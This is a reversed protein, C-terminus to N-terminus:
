ARMASRTAYAKEKFDIEKFAFNTYADGADLVKALTKEVEEKPPNRDALIGDITELIQTIDGTTLVVGMGESPKFPELAIVAALQHAKDIRGGSTVKEGEQLLAFLERGEGLYMKTTEDAGGERIYRQLGFQAINAKSGLVAWQRVRSAVRIEKGKDGNLDMYDKREDGAM